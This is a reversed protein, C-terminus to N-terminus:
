GDIPRESSLSYTLGSGSGRSLYVTNEGYVGFFARVPTTELWLEVREQLAKVIPSTSEGPAQGNLKRLTFDPTHFSFSELEPENWLFFDILNAEM